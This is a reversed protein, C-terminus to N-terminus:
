RRFMSLSPSNSNSNILQDQFLSLTPDLFNGSSRRRGADERSRRSLTAESSDVSLGRRGHFMDAAQRRELSDCPASDQKQLAQFSLFIIKNM